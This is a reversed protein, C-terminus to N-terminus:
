TLGLQGMIWALGKETFSGDDKLYGLRKMHRLTRERHYQEHM